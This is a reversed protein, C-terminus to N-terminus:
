KISLSQQLRDWAAQRAARGLEISAVVADHRMKLREHHRLNLDPCVSVARVSFEYFQAKRAIAQQEARAKAREAEKREEWFQNALERFKRDAEREKRKLSETRYCPADYAFLGRGRYYKLLRLGKHYIQRSREVTLRGGDRAMGEGIESFTVGEGEQDYGTYRKVFLSTREPLLALARDLDIRREVDELTREAQWITM